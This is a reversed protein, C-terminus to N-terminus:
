EQESNYLSEIGRWLDQATPYDRFNNVLDSEINDIIWPIITSDQQSWRIYGPNNSAPSSAIM